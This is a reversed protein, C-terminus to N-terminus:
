ESGTRGDIIVELLLVSASINVGVSRFNPLGKKFICGTGAEVVKVFIDVFKIGTRFVFGLPGDRVHVFKDAFLKM